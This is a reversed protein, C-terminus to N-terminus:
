MGDDDHRCDGHNFCDKKEYEQQNINSKSAFKYNDRNLHVFFCQRNLNKIKKLFHRILGAKNKDRNYENDITKFNSM